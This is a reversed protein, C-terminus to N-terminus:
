LCGCSTAVYTVDDALNGDRNGYGPYSASCYTTQTGSGTAITSMVATCTPALGLHRISCSPKGDKMAPGARTKIHINDFVHPEGEAPDDLAGDENAMLASRETHM